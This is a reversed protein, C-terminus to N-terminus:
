MRRLAIATWENENVFEIPVLANKAFLKLLVPLDSTLIGSFIIIGQKRVRSTLSSIFRSITRFDINAVILDFNHRPIISVSGLKVIM